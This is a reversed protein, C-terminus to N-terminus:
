VVSVKFIKVGYATLSCHFGSTLLDNGTVTVSEHPPMMNEFRGAWGEFRMLPLMLRCNVPHGVFNIIIVRLDDKQVWAYALVSELVGNSADGPMPLAALMAFTGYHFIPENAVALLTRHLIKIYGNEPEDPARNLQVPLKIRRGEMQGDHLLKMGPLTMTLTLAATLRGDFTSLARPEDHNEVFRVMSKQYTLAATLHDRVSNLSEHALRDYLRKDYTYDFGLNLMDHEMDWYVEAIFTFSPYEIKIATIVEAWFETAPQPLGWTKAFIHNNMLMAMDCRVGDCQNAIDQLTAKAAARAAPSFANIQATDTWAPFYPDKGNAFRRLTGDTLRVLFTGEREQSLSLEILVEPAEETWPHDLAVHNPVYDLILSIGRARMQARFTALAARGGFRPDVEYRHIAYPSGAVDHPMWNPLARSYEAHLGPMEQAIKQGQPSRMWVGMLWIADFGHHALADCVEDPINALTIVRGFRRTLADLWVITNIEYIIPHVRM